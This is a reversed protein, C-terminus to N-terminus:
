SLVNVNVVTKFGFPLDKGETRSLNSLLSLALTLGSGPTSPPKSAPDIWHRKKRSNQSTSASVVNSKFVMPVVEKSGPMSMSSPAVYNDQNIKKVKSHSKMSGLVLQGGDKTGQINKSTFVTSPAQTNKSTKSQERVVGSQSPGKSQAKSRTIKTRNGEDYEIRFLKNGMLDIKEQSSRLDKKGILTDRFSAKDKHQLVEDPPEPEMQVDSPSAM